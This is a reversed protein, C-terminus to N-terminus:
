GLLRELFPVQLGGQSATVAMAAVLLSAFLVFGLLEARGLRRARADSILSVTGLVPFGSAASLSRRDVFVPRALALLLAIGLGGGLGAVSVGAYLLPRNPGSPSTPLRAPELVRFQVRERGEVRQGMSAQERRQLLARYREQNINYDRDLRALEAEVDPATEVMQELRDVRRQQESVRVRLSSVDREANSLAVRVEQHVPNDDIGFSGGEAAVRLAAVEEARRRELEELSRRLAIVDPHQETFRVTLQDLDSQLTAIRADLEPTLSRSGESAIATLQRQIEDRRNVAERLELQAQRLDEEAAELRQFYTGLAGPLLAVNERRFDALRREAAELRAEYLAIQEDLFQQATETDDRVDGLAGEVFINVLNRVVEFARGPDSDEYTITYINEQRAGGSLELNREIRGILLELDRNTGAELRIDTSQVLQELVPRTLLTRTMLSVRQNLNPGVALGDLLPGLVTQTDVHVRASSQYQNPIQSVVAWGIVAIIWAALLGWWRYRWMDRASSIVQALTEHM